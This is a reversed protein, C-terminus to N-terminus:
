SMDVQGAPVACAELGIMLSFPVPFAFVLFSRLALMLVIHSRIRHEAVGEPKVSLPYQKKFFLTGILM